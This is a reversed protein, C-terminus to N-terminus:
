ANGQAQAFVALSERMFNNQENDSMDATLLDVMHQLKKKKEFHITKLFDIAIVSTNNNKSTTPWISVM